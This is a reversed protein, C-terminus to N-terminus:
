EKILFFNPHYLVKKNSVKFFLSDRDKCGFVVEIKGNRSIINLCKPTLIPSKGIKGEYFKITDRKKLYELPERFISNLNIKEDTTYDNEATAINVEVVSIKNPFENQNYHLIIDKDNKQNPFHIWNSVTDIKGLYAYEIQNLIIKDEYIKKDNLFGKSKTIYKHSFTTIYLVLNSIKNRLLYVEEVKLTDKRETAFFNEPCNFFRKNNIEQESDECIGYTYVEFNDIKYEKLLVGKDELHLQSTKYLGSGCSLAIQAIFLILIFERM